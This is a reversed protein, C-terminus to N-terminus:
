ELVTEVVHDTESKEFNIFFSLSQLLTIVTSVAASCEKVSSGLILLDDINIVLRIGSRRLSAVAVRLLTTFVWPSSCLGFSLCTYEFTKRGWRFRLFKRHGKFLPITLYADTHDVKALFDGTQGDQSRHRHGGNQFSSLTYIQEAAEFQHHCAM